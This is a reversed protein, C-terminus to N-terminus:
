KKPPKSKFKFKERQEPTPRPFQRPASGPDQPSLEDHSTDPPTDDSRTSGPAQADTAPKIGLKRLGTEITGVAKRVMNVGIVTSKVAKFIVLGTIDPITFVGTVDVIITAAGMVGKVCGSLLETSAAIKEVLGSSQCILSQLQRLSDLIDEGNAEVAEPDAGEDELVKKLKSIISESVGVGHLHQAHVRMFEKMANSAKATYAVGGTRKLFRDMISRESNLMEVIGTMGSCLRPMLDELQRLREASPARDIEGDLQEATELIDRAKKNLEFILDAFDDFM